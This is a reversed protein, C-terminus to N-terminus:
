IRFCHTGIETPDNAGSRVPLLGTSLDLRTIVHIGPKEKIPLARYRYDSYGLDDTGYGLV